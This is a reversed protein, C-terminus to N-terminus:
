TSAQRQVCCGNYKLRVIHAFLIRINSNPIQVTVSLYCASKGECVSKLPITWVAVWLLSVDKEFVCSALVNGAFSFLRPHQRLRGM